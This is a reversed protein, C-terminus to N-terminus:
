FLLSFISGVQVGLIMLLILLLILFCFYSRAFNKVNKNSTGGLAFIILIILGILPISFLLEYGLYGWMSIPKYEDPITNNGGNNYIVTTAGQVPPPTSTQTQSNQNSSTQRNRTPQIQMSSEKKATEKSFEETRQDPQDLVKWGCYKCFKAGEAVESRCNVCQM